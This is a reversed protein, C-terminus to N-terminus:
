LYPSRNYGVRAWHPNTSALSQMLPKAHRGFCPFPKHIFLTLKKVFRWYCIWHSHATLWIMASTPLESMFYFTPPVHRLHSMQMVYLHTSSHRLKHSVKHLVSRTVLVFTRALYTLYLSLSSSISSIKTIFL